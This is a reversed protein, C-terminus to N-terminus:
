ETRRRHFLWWEICLLAIAALALYRWLPWGTTFAALSSALAPSEAMQPTLLISGLDSERADFTNVAMWGDTGGSRVTYFGNRMPQFTYGAAAAAASATGPPSAPKKDLLQSPGSLAASGPLDIIEGALTSM